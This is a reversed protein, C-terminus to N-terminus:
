NNPDFAISNIAINGFFDDVPYWSAYQDTIDENYWLGGGVGAAWVKKSFPDNPDFMIARTRGGFNNPGRETWVSSSVRLKSMLQSAYKKAEFLRETPPFGLSPDKTMEFDHLDALDPRDYRALKNLDSNTMELYSQFHHPTDQKNFYLVTCILSLALVSLLGAVKFGRM